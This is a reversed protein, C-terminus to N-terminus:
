GFTKLYLDEFKKWDDGSWGASARELTQDLIRKQNKKIGDRQNKLQADEEEETSPPKNSLTGNKEDEAKVEALVGKLAKMYNPLFEKSLKSKGAPGTVLFAVLADGQQFNVWEKWFSEADMTMIQRPSLAKGDRVVERVDDKIWYNTRFELKGKDLNAQEMLDSLGNRLWMPMGLALDRDRDQFWIDVLRSIVNKISYSTSGGNDDYTVVEINNWSWDSSKFFANYEASDKCIRLVPARVYEKDGLFDFTTDLWKLVAESREVMKKAFKDDGHNLVLFRGMQKASWGDPLDKQAREQALKEIKKKHATREDPTLKDWDFAVFNSEGTSAQVLGEGSREIGKFSKLCRKMDAQLKPWASELCEFQVALDVDQLHYVWTLIHKPGDYSLKEVKIEFCTVPVDGAKSEEKKDVFWGGGSYRRKMYDEYDKYPSDYVILVEKTGDKKERQEVKAREKVAEAVFAITTMDPKHENTWGTSKDTWFYSKDSTCKAVVWREEVSTPVESWNKPTQIQYGLRADKHDARALPGLLAFALLALSLRPM